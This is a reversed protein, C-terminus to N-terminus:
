SQHVLLLLRMEENFVCLQLSGRRSLPTATATTLLTQIFKFQFWAERDKPCSLIWTWQKRFVGTKTM